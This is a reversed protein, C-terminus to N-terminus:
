WIGHSKEPISLKSTYLFMLMSLDKSLSSFRLCFDMSDKIDTGLSSLYEPPSSIFTYSSYRFDASSERSLSRKSWLWSSTIPM